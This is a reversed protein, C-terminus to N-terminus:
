SGGPASYQYGDAANDKGPDYNCMYTEGADPRENGWPYDRADTGRAAKEWEAETPLRYGNKTFDCEGVKDHYCLGLGEKRSRWNCYRVADYWSVCVVPHSDLQAFGPNSWNAGRTREWGASWTWAWGEKEADTRHGTEEIFRKFQGVTVEHKDIFFEDVWVKHQPGVDQNGKPAAGMLFEGSPVLVMEPSSFKELIVNEQGAEKAFVPKQPRKRLPWSFSPRADCSELEKLVSSPSRIYTAKSFYLGRAYRRGMLAMDSLIMFHGSRSQIFSSVPPWEHKMPVDWVKGEESTTYRGGGSFIIFRGTKDKVLSLQSPHGIERFVKNKQSWVASNGSVLFWQNSQRAIKAYGGSQMEIVRWDYPGWEWDQEAVAKKEWRVGDSSILYVNEVLLLFHGKRDILFDIGGILRYTTAHIKKPYTWKVGDPSKSIYIANGKRDRDSMWVLWYTGSGDQALRPHVEGYVSSMFVKEPKSWSDGRDDSFSFYLQGQEWLAWLRGRRDEFLCPNNGGDSVKVPPRFDHFPSMSVEKREGPAVTVSCEAIPFSVPNPVYDLSAMLKVTHEGPSCRGSYVDGDIYLRVRWIKKQLKGSRKKGSVWDPDLMDIFRPYWVFIESNKEEPIKAQDTVPTPSPTLTPESPTFPVLKATVRWGEGRPRQVSVEVLRTGLPCPSEFNGDAVEDISVEKDTLHDYLQETNVKYFSLSVLGRGFVFDRAKFHGNLPLVAKM